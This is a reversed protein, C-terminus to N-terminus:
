CIEVYLDLTFTCVLEKLVEKTSMSGHLCVPRDAGDPGLRQVSGCWLALRRRFGRCGVDILHTM